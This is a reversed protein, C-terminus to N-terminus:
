WSCFLSLTYQSPLPLIELNPFLKRCSDRSRWGMMIRIIKKQLRFIKIRDPSNGWFILGYTMISHFYSYYIVKFTNATVYPKVLRMVYCVSSWQYHCYQLFSRLPSSWSTKQVAFVILTILQLFILHIYYTGCIASFLFECHNPWPVQHVSVMQFICIYTSPYYFWNKFIITLHHEDPLSFPCTISGQSCSLWKWSIYFLLFKKM